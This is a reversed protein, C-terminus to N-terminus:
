LKSVLDKLECELRYRTHADYSQRITVKLKEIRRQLEMSVDSPKSITEEVIVEDEITKAKCSDMHKNLHHIMKYEKGCYDCKYM